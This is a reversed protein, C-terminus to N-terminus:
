PRAEQQKPCVAEHLAFYLEGTLRLATPEVQSDSLEYIPTREDLWVTRGHPTLAKLVPANCLFCPAKM